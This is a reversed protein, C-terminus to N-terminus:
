VIFQERALVVSELWQAKVDLDYRLVKDLANLWHVDRPLLGNAGMMHQQRIRMDM